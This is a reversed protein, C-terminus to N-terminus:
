YYKADEAWSSKSDDVMGQAKFINTSDDAGPTGNMCIKRLYKKDCVNRGDEIEKEHGLASIM